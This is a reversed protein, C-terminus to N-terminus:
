RALKAIIRFLNKDYIPSNMFKWVQSHISRQCVLLILIPREPIRKNYKSIELELIDLEPTFDDLCFVFPKGWKHIYDCIIRHMKNYYKGYRIDLKVNFKCMEINRLEYSVDKWLYINRDM